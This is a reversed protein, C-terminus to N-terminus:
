GVYVDVDSSKVNADIGTSGFAMAKAWIPPTSSDDSTTSATLLSQSGSFEESNQTERLSPTSTSSPKNSSAAVSRVMVVALTEILELTQRAVNPATVSSVFAVLADSEVIDRPMPAPPQLPKTPGFLSM